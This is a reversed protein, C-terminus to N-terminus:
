DDLGYLFSRLTTSKNNLGLKKRIHNRHVSITEMSLSLIGAITKTSLGQKVMQAVQIEVPTLQRFTTSLSSAGEHATVLELLNAEIINLLQAQNQTLSSNKLKELFPTVTKRLNDSLQNQADSMYMKQQKLVVNLASKVEVTEEKWVGLEATTVGIQNELYLRSDLLLKETQKQLSIDMFFVVFHTILKNEDTVATNILWIPFVEGNKRKAWSEGQWIGQTTMAAGMIQYFENGQLGSSLLSSQKGIVEEASYGTMTTFAQNVRLIVHDADAVMVSEQMEFAKAAVRLFQEALKRESIDTFTVKLEAPKGESKRQLCDLSAQFIGGDARRLALEFGCKEHSQFAKTLYLRWGGVDELAVFAAFNSKIPRESEVGLLQACKLNIETIGGHETLTLYAVPAFEYLQLYHDRSDELANQTIRLAENQMELEIQHVHLEHVTRSIPNSVTEVMASNAIQAEARERLETANKDIKKKM